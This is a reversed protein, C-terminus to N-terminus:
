YCHPKEHTFFVYDRYPVSCPPEIITFNNAIITVTIMNTISMSLIYFDLFLFNLEM